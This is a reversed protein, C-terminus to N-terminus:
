RVEVVACRSEWVGAKTCATKASSISAFNGMKVRHFTNEGRHSVTEIQLKNSRELAPEAKALDLYRRTAQDISDYSGLPVYYHSRRAAPRKVPVGISGTQLDDNPDIIPANQTERVLQVMGSRDFAQSTEANHVPRERHIVFLAVCGAVVFLWFYENRKSRNM